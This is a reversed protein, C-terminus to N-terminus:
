KEARLRATSEDLWSKFEQAFREQARDRYYPAIASDPPRQGLTLKINLKQNNRLVALNVEDGKQKSTVYSAFDELPDQPDFSAGDISLIEDAVQLQGEAASGKVVSRVQIANIMQGDAGLALSPYMMIGVFGRPVRNYEAQKANYLIARLRYRAEPVSSKVYSELIPELAVEPYDNALKSLEIQATERSRFDDSGLQDTLDMLKAKDPAPAKPEEPVPAPAKPEEPAPAPEVQIKPATPIPRFPDPLQGPASACGAALALTAILRAPSLM